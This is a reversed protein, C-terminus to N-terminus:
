ATVASAETTADYLLNLDDRTITIQEDNKTIVILDDPLFEFKMKTKELLREEQAALQALQELVLRQQEALQAKKRSVDALSIVAGRPKIRTGSGNGSERKNLHYTIAAPTVGFHDAIQQASMGTNKLRIVDATEIKQRSEPVEPVQPMRVQAIRSNGNPTSSLHWASCDECPYPYQPPNNYKQRNQEEFSKAEQENTFSLKGTKPCRNNTM